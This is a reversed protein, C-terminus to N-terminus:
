GDFVVCKNNYIIIRDEIHAKIAQVLVNKELIRGKRVLDGVEDRHSIRVIDQLLSFAANFM